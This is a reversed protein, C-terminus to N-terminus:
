NRSGRKINKDLTSLLFENYSGYTLCYARIWWFNHFYVMWCFVNYGNYLCSIWCNNRFSSRCYNLYILFRFKSNKISWKYIILFWYNNYWRAYWCIKFFEMFSFYNFMWYSIYLIRILHCISNKLLGIKRWRVWIFIHCIAIFYLGNNSYDYLYGDLFNGYWTGRRRRKWKCCWTTSSASLGM